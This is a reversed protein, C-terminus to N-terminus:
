VAFEVSCTTWSWNHWPTIRGCIRREHLIWGHEDIEYLAVLGRPRRRRHSTLGHDCTSIERKRFFIHIWAKEKWYHLTGHPTPSCYRDTRHKAINRLRVIGSRKQRCKDCGLRTCCHKWTTQEGMHVVCGHDNTYRFFLYVTLSSLYNIAKRRTTCMWMRHLYQIDLYIKDHLSCYHIDTLFCNNSYIHDMDHVLLECKTYYPHNHFDM